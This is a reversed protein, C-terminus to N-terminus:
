QGELEAIEPATLRFDMAGVIGDVQKSNRAGVIAGTVAPHHEGRELDGLSGRRVVKADPHVASAYAALCSGHPMSDCAREYVGVWLEANGQLSLAEESTVSADDLPLLGAEM